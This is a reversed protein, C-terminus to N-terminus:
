RGSKLDAASTEPNEQNSPPEAQSEEHPPPSAEAVSTDDDLAGPQDLRTAPGIEPLGQGRRCPGAGRALEDGTELADASYM